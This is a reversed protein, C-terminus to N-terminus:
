GSQDLAAGYNTWMLPDGPALAVAANLLAVADASPLERLLEFGFQSLARRMPMGSGLLSALRPNASSWIEVSAYVSRPEPLKPPKLDMVCRGPVPNAVLALFNFDHPRLM